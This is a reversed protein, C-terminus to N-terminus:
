GTCSRVRSCTERATLDKPQCRFAPVHHEKGAHRIFAGNPGDTVVCSAVSKLRGFAESASDGGAVSM